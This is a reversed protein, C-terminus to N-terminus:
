KTLINVLLRARNCLSADVTAHRYTLLIGLSFNPGNCSVMHRIERLIHWLFHDRLLDTSM